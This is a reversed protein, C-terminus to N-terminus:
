AQNDPSRCGARKSERVLAPGGARITTTISTMSLPGDGRQGLVPLVTPQMSAADFIDKIVGSASVQMVPQVAPV